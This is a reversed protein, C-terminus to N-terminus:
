SCITNVVLLFRVAITRNKTKIQQYCSPFSKINKVRKKVVLSCSCRRMDKTQEITVWKKGRPEDMIAVQLWSHEASATGIM